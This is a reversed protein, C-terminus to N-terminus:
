FLAPTISFRGFGFHSLNGSGCVLTLYTRRTSECLTSPIFVLWSVKSTVWLNFNLVTCYYTVPWPCLNYPNHSWHWTLISMARGVTVIITIFIKTLFLTSFAYIFLWPSLALQPNYSWHWTLIPMAKGLKVIITIFIKCWPWSSPVFLMYKYIYNHSDGWGSDLIFM